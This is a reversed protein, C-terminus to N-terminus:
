LFVAEKFAAELQAETLKAIEERTALRCDKHNANNGCSGDPRIGIVASSSSGSVLVLSGQAYNHGGLNNIIVVAQFKQFGSTTQKKMPYGTLASTLAEIPGQLSGFDYNNLVDQAARTSRPRDDNPSTPPITLAVVKEICAKRKSNEM